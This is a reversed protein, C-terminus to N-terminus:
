IMMMMMMMMMLTITVIVCFIALIFVAVLPLVQVLDLVEEFLRLELLREKQVLSLLDFLFGPATDLCDACSARREFM